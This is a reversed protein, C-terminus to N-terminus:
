YKGVGVELWYEPPTLSPWIVFGVHWYNGTARFVLVLLLSYNVLVKFFVCSHPDRTHTIYIYILVKSGLMRIAKIFTVATIQFQEM